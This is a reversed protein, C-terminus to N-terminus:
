KRADIKQFLSFLEELKEWNGSIVLVDYPRIMKVAGPNNILEQKRQLITLEQSIIRYISYYSSLVVDLSSSYVM